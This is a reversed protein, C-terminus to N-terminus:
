AKTGIGQLMSDIAAARHAWSAEESVHQAGNKGMRRARERDRALAGVAQALAAASGQKAVVGCDLRRVLEGQFPLDSAIVAAGCGMSEYLKLPAVGLTSRGQPDEIMCLSALAGRLLAPVDEYPVRGLWALRPHGSAAELRNREVGDGAVVLRVGAPWAPEDLAALMTGIGHWAVLGGVFAVYDYGPEHRPGDPRFIDANAGNPVVIVRDHGAFRRAWEGLGDTVAVIRAARRFQIRYLFRILAGFPRLVPYTVGLETPDGNIEQVVPVGRWRAYLALPAAMLHARMYIRDYDALRRALRWQTVVHGALRAIKGGSASAGGGSSAHLDVRWGLRKLGEVIEHVHTYSAQGPRPTELSLYAIRGRAAM